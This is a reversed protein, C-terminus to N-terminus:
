FIPEGTARQLEYRSIVYRYLAQLQGLKAASEATESDLLDLNTMSGTEYKSRALSVAAVAQQVQLEAIQLKEQAARVDAAVQEVDTRIQQEVDRLHEQEALYLAQAEQEQNKARGGEYLPIELKVGAVWNGRWADLNPIYGNKVGYSANVKLSPLAGLSALRFQLNTTLIVDHVFAMEPRQKYAREILTDISAPVTFVQFDWKLQLVTTSPIELLQRLVSQQRQLANELEIKQQQANAVRVQTTLIDFNTATGANVRKKTIDLHENLADIQEKQVVISRQLVLISYFARITQYVLGTKIIEVADRTSQVRSESLDISANTRGFDFVTYRAGIHGDYNDEPYLKFSGMIPIDLQPVPGIRTYLAEATIEPLEASISQRWRAESAQVQQMSQIVAPHTSLVEQIAQDVTLSDQARASSLLVMMLPIIFFQPKMKKEKKM